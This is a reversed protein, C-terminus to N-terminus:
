MMGMAPLIQLLSTVIRSLDTGEPLWADFTLLPGQLVMRGALAADLLAELDHKATAPVTPGLAGLLERRQERLEELAESASQISRGVYGISRFVFAGAVGIRPSTRLSAGGRVPMDAENGSANCVAITAPGPGALARARAFAPSELLSGATAGSKARRVLDASGFALTRPGVQGLGVHEDLAVFGNEARAAFAARLEPDITGLCEIIGPLEFSGDFLAIGLDPGDPDDQMSYSVAEVAAVLDVVCSADVGALSQVIGLASSAAARVTEASALARLDVQVVLQPGTGAAIRGLHAELAPPLPPATTPENAVPLPPLNAPPPGTPAPPVDPPTAPSPALDRCGPTACKSAQPQDPPSPEPIGQAAGPVPAADMGDPAVPAAPAQAEAKTGGDGKATGDASPKGCGFTGLIAALLVATRLM